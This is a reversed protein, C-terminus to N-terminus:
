LLEETNKIFNNKNKNYYSDIDRAIQHLGLQKYGESMLLLAEDTYVSKPYEKLVTEARKILAVWAALKQYNQAILIERKALLNTLAVIAKRSYPVYKSNPFRQILQQYYQIAKTMPESHTKAPDNIYLNIFGKIKSEESFALMFFAYDAHPHHPYNRLFENIEVQAFTSKGSDLQAKAKELWAYETYIGYPFKTQMENLVDIAITYSGSDMLDRADEYYQKPTWDDRSLTACSLLSLSLIAILINQM